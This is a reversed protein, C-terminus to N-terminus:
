PAAVQTLTLSGQSLNVAGLKATNVASAGFPFDITWTVTITSPGGTNSSVKYVGSTVGSAVVNGGTVSAVSFATTGSANIQAALATDAAAVSAATVAGSTSGITFYLDDGSASVNFTQTYVLRNGPVLRVNALSTVAAPATVQTGANNYFGKTWTGNNVAAVSLTGATITNSGSAPGANATDNWYALSGAGGMLLIVGAAAAITGKAVKNM